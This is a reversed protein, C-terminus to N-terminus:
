FGSILFITSCDIMWDLDSWYKEIWLKDESKSSWIWRIMFEEFCWWWRNWTWVFCENLSQCAQSLQHLDNAKFVSVAFIEFCKSKRNGLFAACSVAVSVARAARSPFKLLSRRLISVQNRARATLRAVELNQLGKQIWNNILIKDITTSERLLLKSLLWYQNATHSSSFCLLKSTVKVNKPAHWRYLLFLLKFYTNISGVCIEFILSKRACLLLWSSFTM